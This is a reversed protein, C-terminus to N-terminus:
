PAARLYRRIAAAGLPNKVQREELIRTVTINPYRALLGRIKAEFEDLKSSYHCVPAPLQSNVLGASPDDRSTQHQRIVRAVRWRSLNMERAISRMSQGGRWRHIIENDRTDQKM